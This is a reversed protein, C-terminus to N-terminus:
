SDESLAVLDLRRLQRVCELFHEESGSELEVWRHGIVSEATGVAVRMRLPEAFLKRVRAALRNDRCDVEVGQPSWVLTGLPFEGQRRGERTRLLPYLVM